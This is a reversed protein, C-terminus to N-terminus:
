EKMYEYSIKETSAKDFDWLHSGLPPWAGVKSIVKISMSLALRASCPSNLFWTRGFLKSESIQKGLCNELEGITLSIKACEGFCEVISTIDSKSSLPLGCLDGDSRFKLHLRSMDEWEKQIVKIAFRSTTRFKHTLQRKM